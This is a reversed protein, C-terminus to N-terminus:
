SSCSKWQLIINEGRLVSGFCCIYFQYYVAHFLFLHQIKKVFHREYSAHLYGVEFNTAFIRTILLTWLRKNNFINRAFALRLRLLFIAWPLVMPLRYNVLPASYACFSSSFYRKKRSGESCLFASNEKCLAEWLECSFM